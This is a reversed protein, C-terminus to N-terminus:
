RLYFELLLSQTPLERQLDFTLPHNQFSQLFRIIRNLDMVIKNKLIDSIFPIYFFPVVRIDSFFIYVNKNILFICVTKKNKLKQTETDFALTLILFELEFVVNSDLASSKELFLKM